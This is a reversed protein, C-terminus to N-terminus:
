PCPIRPLHRPDAPTACGRPVTLVHFDGDGIQAFVDIAREGSHLCAVGHDDGLSANGNGAQAWDVPLSRSEDSMSSPSM